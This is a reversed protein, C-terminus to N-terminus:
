AEPNSWPAGNDALYRELQDLDGFVQDSFLRVVWNKDLPTVTLVPVGARKAEFIEIATGMSATPLYAIVLSSGRARQLHEHFVNWAREDDYHVSGQHDAFPDFIQADPMQRAVIQALESRYGQDEIVLESRSGQMVGALFVKLGDDM